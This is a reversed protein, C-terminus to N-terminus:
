LQRDGRLDIELERQTGAIPQTAVDDEPVDVAPGGDALARVRALDHKLEIRSEASVYDLLARDREVADAERDGRDIAVLQRDRQNRCRPSGRCKPGDLYFASHVHFDVDEGLM